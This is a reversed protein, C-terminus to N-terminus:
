GDIQQWRGNGDRGRISNKIIITYVEPEVISISNIRYNTVM